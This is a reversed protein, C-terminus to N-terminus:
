CQAPGSPTGSRDSGARTRWSSALSQVVKWGGLAARLSAEVPHPNILPAWVQEWRRGGFTRHVTFDVKWLTSDTTLSHCSLFLPSEAERGPSPEGSRGRRWRGWDLGQVGLILM